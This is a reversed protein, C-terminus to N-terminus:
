NKKFAKASILTLVALSLVMVVAVAAANSNDGAYPPEEESPTDSSSTNDSSTSDSSTDDSGAGAGFYNLAVGKDYVIQGLVRYGDGNLHVDGKVGTARYAEPVFGATLNALDTETPTFGVKRMAGEFEDVLDIVHNGFAATFKERIEQSNRTAVRNYNKDLDMYPLIIIYNDGGYAVAQEYLSVLHDVDEYVGNFGMLYVDCYNNPSVTTIDQLFAETGAPITVAETADTRILYTKCDTSTKYDTISITYTKGDIIVKDIPLDRGFPSTWQLKRTTRGDNCVFGRYEDDLLVSTQGAAFTIENETFIRMSGQRAMIDAVREGGDGANQVLYGSGLLEQLVTPYAKGGTGKGYGETVSDGYCTIILSTPKNQSYDGKVYIELEFLSLTGNGENNGTCQFLVYRGSAECTMSVEGAKTNSADVSVAKTGNAIIGEFIATKNDSNFTVDFDGENAVYIDYYYKRTGSSGAFATTVTKAIDFTDGLDIILWATGNNAGAAMWKNADGVKKGDFAKDATYSSQTGNSLIRDKTAGEAINTIVEEASAGMSMLCTASALLVCLALLMSVIRKFTANM